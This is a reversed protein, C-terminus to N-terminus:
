FGLHSEVASAITRAAAVAMYSAPEALCGADTGVTVEGKPLENPPQPVVNVITAREAASIAQRAEAKAQALKLQRAEEDLM